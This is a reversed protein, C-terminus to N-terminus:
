LFNFRFEEQSPTFKFPGTNLTGPSESLCGESDQSKRCAESCKRIFQGKKKCINRKVKVVRASKVTAEMLKLEKCLEEEMKKRYDGFMARMLQRKKVLPAKDSRLTKIAHLAENVQKPTSKQTNLGLELQEVCWDVEKWLQDGSQQSTEDQYSTGANQCRSAEAKTKRNIETEKIEKKSVSTKQKKKKKQAGGDASKEAVPEDGPATESQPIKLTVHSRDEKPSSGTTQTLEPKQLAAFQPMGASEDLLSNGLVEHGATCDTQQSAPVLQSLPCDEDTIFFNFAFKPEQGSAAFSSAGNWNQETAGVSTQIQEDGSVDPVTELPTGTAEPDSDSLTFDFRFSNDPSMFWKPKAKSIQDCQEGHVVSDSAQGSSQQVEVDVPKMDAKGMYMQDDAMKLHYDEFVHNMVEQKNAFPTDRSRLVKLICQTEEAQKPTPSLRLNAELQSICWQLKEQFTRQPGQEMGSTGPWRRGAAAHPSGPDLKVRAPGLVLSQLGTRLVAESPRPHLRSLLPGRAGGLYRGESHDAREKTGECENRLRAWPFAADEEALARDGARVRRYPLPCAGGHAVVPRGRGETPGADRSPSSAPWLHRPASRSPVPHASSWGRHHMQVGLQGGTEQAGRPAAPGPLAPSPAVQDLPSHGQGHCTPVRHVKLHRGVWVMGHYMELALVGSDLEPRGVHVLDWLWKLLM